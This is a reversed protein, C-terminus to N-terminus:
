CISIDTSCSSLTLWFFDLARGTQHCLHCCSETRAVGEQSAHGDSEEHQGRQPTWTLTVSKLEVSWSAVGGALVSVASVRARAMPATRTSSWRLWIFSAGPSVSFRVHIFFLDNGFWKLEFTRTLVANKSVEIFDSVGLNVVGDQIDQIM